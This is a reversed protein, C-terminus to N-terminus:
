WPDREVAESIHSEVQDLPIGLAVSIEGHLFRKAQDGLATEEKSLAKSQQRLYVSKIVRAWEIEDYMAMSAQYLERRAKDHPAQIVPIFGMRDILDLIKEKSAVVRVINEDDLPLERVADGEHEVLRATAGNVDAVRWIGGDRLVVHDGVRYM